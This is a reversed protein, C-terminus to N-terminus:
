RLFHRVEALLRTTFKTAGSVDHHHGDFFDDDELWSRADLIEVGYTARLEDLLNATAMWCAPTYWSRFESSEPTLILVVPIRERRCCAL